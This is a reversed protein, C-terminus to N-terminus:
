LLIFYIWLISAIIAYIDLCIIKVKSEKNKKIIMFVISTIAILITVVNIAISFCLATLIAAAIALYLSIKSEETLDKGCYICYKVNEENISKCKPCIM